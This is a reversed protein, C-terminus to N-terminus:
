AIRCCNRAPSAVDFALRQFLTPTPAIAMAAAANIAVTSSVLLCVPGAGFNGDVGSIAEL